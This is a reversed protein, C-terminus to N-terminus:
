TGLVRDLFPNAFIRDPDYEHRAAVFDDFRPYLPRLEDATHHLEKGWHPRGGLERMHAWFGDFYRDRHGLVATYAGLQVVDGGYAPSLWGNDGKVFRLETIFNVHVAAEDIVRVAADWAAGGSALPVSAETETHRVPMPTSFIVPSAGVRSAKRLTRGAVRNWTPVWGSRWRQAAFVGPLVARHFITEDVFRDIVVPLATRPTPVRECRFVLAKPTHPMWWVKTFEAGAGIEPLAEAVEGVPMWEIRERLSFAPVVRLRVRTVIGLAGLHVRAADLFEDDEGVDRVAGTGVVLRMGTVLGSLNRHALSSGHTGTAIAGAVSQDAISGLIPLALGRVALAACLDRLRTGALVTVTSDDYAVIGRLSDLSVAIDAPAAIANFSHGAGVCRVRRGQQRAQRVVAVVDDETTPLVWRGPSSTETRAWNAFRGDRAQPPRRWHPATSRTM